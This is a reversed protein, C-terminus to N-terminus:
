RRKLFSPNASEIGELNVGFKRPNEVLFNNPRPIEDLTKEAGSRFLSFSPKKL